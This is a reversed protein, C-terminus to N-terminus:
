RFLINRPTDDHMGVGAIASNNSDMMALDILFKEIDLDNWGQEPMQRQALLNRVQKAFHQHNQYGLKVYNKNIWQEALKWNQEDM